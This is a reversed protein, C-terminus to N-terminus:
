YGVRFLSPEPSESGGLRKRAFQIAQSVKGPMKRSKRGYTDLQIYRRGQEDTFISASCTTEETADRNIHFIWPANEPRGGVIQV